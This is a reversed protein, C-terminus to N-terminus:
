NDPADADIWAAILDVQEQTLPGNTAGAPMASGCPPQTTPVTVAKLKSNVKLWLLSSASSGPDVRLLGAMSACTAGSSGASTGAAPAGAGTTGLLDTYALAKSSLDLHGVNVGGGGPQHCTVCRSSIIAYVETFTPQSGSDAAADTEGGADVSTTGGMSATGGGGTGLGGVGTHTGGTASTGGLSTMGTTTAGGVSSTTGGVGSGPTGGGGVASSGGVASKGGAASSGGAASNGGSALSGGTSPAGGTAHSGGTSSSIGGTATAGGTTGTRGGSASSSGGASTGGNNNDDSCDYLVASLALVALSKFWASSAQSAIRNRHIM